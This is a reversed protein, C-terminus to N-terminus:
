RHGPFGNFLVRNALSDHQTARRQCQRHCSAPPNFVQPCTQKQPSLNHTLRTSILPKACRALVLLRNQDLRSLGQRVRSSRQEVLALAPDVQPLRGRVLTIAGGIFTIPDGKRSLLGGVFVIANSVRPFPGRVFAISQGVLTLEGGIGAVVFIGL